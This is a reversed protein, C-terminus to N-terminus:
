ALREALLWVPYANVEDIGQEKLVTPAPVKTIEIGRERCRHMLWYGDRQTAEPTADMIALREPDHKALWGVVTDRATDGLTTSCWTRYDDLPRGNILPTITVPPPAKKAARRRSSTLSRERTCEVCEYNTTRRECIHGAPCPKGTFFVSLDRSKAEARSIFEGAAGVVLTHGNFFVRVAPDIHFYAVLAAEVQDRHVNIEVRNTM